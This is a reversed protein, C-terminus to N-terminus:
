TSPKMRADSTSAFSISLVVRLSILSRLPMTIATCGLLKRLTRPRVKHAQIKSSTAYQRSSVVAVGSASTALAINGPNSVVLPMNTAIPEGIAADPQQVGLVLAVEANIVVTHQHHLAGAFLEVAREIMGGDRRLLLSVWGGRARLPIRM